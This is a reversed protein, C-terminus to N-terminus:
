ESSHAAVVGVFPVRALRHRMGDLHRAPHCSFPGVAVVAEPELVFVVSIALSPQYRRGGRGVGVGGLAGGVASRSVICSHHVICARCCVVVTRSRVELELGEGFARVVPDDFDESASPVHHSDDVHLYSGM